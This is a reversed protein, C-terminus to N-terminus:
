NVLTGIVYLGFTLWSFVVVATQYDTLGQLKTYNIQATHIWSYIMALGLIMYFAEM